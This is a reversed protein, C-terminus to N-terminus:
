KVELKKEIFESAKLVNERYQPAVDELFDMFSSAIDDNNENKIKLKGDM